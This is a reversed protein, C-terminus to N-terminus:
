QLIKRQPTSHIIPGVIPIIWGHAFNRMEKNRTTPLVAERVYGTPLEWARMLDHEEVEQNHLM